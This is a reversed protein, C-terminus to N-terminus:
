WWQFITGRAFVLKKKKQFYWTSAIVDWPGVIYDLQKRRLSCGHGGRTVNEWSDGTRGVYQYCPLRVREIIAVMEIEELIHDRGGRRWSVRTWSYWVFGYRRIGQFDEHDPDLNLEINIDGVIFFAMAGMNKGEDM